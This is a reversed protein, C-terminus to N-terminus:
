QRLAKRESLRQGIRVEFMTQGIQIRAVEGSGDVFKADLVQGGVPLSKPENTKDNVLMLEVGDKGRAIGSVVWDAYTPGPPPPPQEPQGPNPPMDNHAVPPQAPLAPEKFINKAVVRNITTGIAAIADSQSPLNNGRLAESELEEVPRWARQDPGVARSRLEKEPLFASTLMITLEVRDHEKGVPKMNFGDIRHVWPQLELTAMTRMAQELTGKGVLTGSIAYFDPSRLEKKKALEAPHAEVAPNKVGVAKASTVQADALGYHAVIENLATRLSASVALEDTGLGTDAFTRLARKVRAAGELERERTDIDSRYDGISAVLAARQKAYGRYEWMGVGLAVLAALVLGIFKTPGSM